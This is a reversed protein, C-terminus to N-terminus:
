EEARPATEFIFTAAEESLTVELMMRVFTELAEASGEKMVEEHIYSVEGLSLGHSHTHLIVTGIGLARRYERILKISIQGTAHEIPPLLRGAFERILRGKTRIKLKRGQVYKVMDLERFTM